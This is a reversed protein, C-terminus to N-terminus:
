ERLRIMLNEESKKEEKEDRWKRKVERDCMGYCKVVIIEVEEEYM